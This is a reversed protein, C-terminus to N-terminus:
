LSYPGANGTSNLKQSGITVGLPGLPERLINLCNPEATQGAIAFMYILAFLKIIYINVIYLVQLHMLQM